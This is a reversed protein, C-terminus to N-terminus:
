FFLHAAAVLLSRLVSLALIGVYYIEKPKLFWNKPLYFWGGRVEGGLLIRLIRKPRLWFALNAMLIDRSLEEKTTTSPVYPLSSSSGGKVLSLCANLNSWDKAINCGKEKLVMEYLKTGPYPTANNFRVFDLPLKLAEKIVAKREENTETPIGLIFTAEVKFGMKKALYVARLNQEVTEGKNLLQLLREKTTELGLSIADFGAEKLHRLIDQDIADGRTQCMFKAKKHLGKEHMLRCLKKTRQKNVVFNDDWFEIRHLKYKNILLELEGIVKEPSKFRYRGGSVHRQSCFICNYPCGRASMVIGLDYKDLHQEFLHYPFQPLRDLDDFLLALENHVIRGKKDKFSIGKIKSYDKGKKISDYLQNLIEEGERRVVIDINKNRLVEEPLMTPHIGGMIVFSDPHWKKLLVAIEYGRNIAATTCSIGFIYPKSLGTLYHRITQETIPTVQEDLIKAKKKKFILYSALTGIPMPLSVPVFRAFRGLKELRNFQPNILIM